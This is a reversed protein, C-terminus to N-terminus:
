MLAIYLERNFAVIFSKLCLQLFIDIIANKCGARLTFDDSLKAALNENWGEIFLDIDSLKDFSGRRALSGYLHVKEVAYKEELHKAIKM